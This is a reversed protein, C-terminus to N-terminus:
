LQKSIWGLSLLPFTVREQSHQWWSTISGGLASTARTRTTAALTTAAKTSPQSCGLVCNSQVFGKMLQYFCNSIFCLFVLLSPSLTADSSLHPMSVNPLKLVSKKLLQTFTM